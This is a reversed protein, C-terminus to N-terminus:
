ICARPPPRRAGRGRRLGPRCAQRIQGRGPVPLREIIIAEGASRAGQLVAVGYRGGTASLAHLATVLMRLPSAAGLDGLAIAGGRPNLRDEDVGFAQQWALPISAFTEEVEYHDLQHIGLGARELADTTVGFIGSIGDAAPHFRRAASVIRARPVLGLERGRQEDVILLAAAGTAPRAANRATLRWGPAFAAATDPASDADPPVAETAVYEDTGCRHRGVTIPIMEPMFEGMADVERARRRSRTAYLDLSDRALGCREAVSEAVAARGLWSGTSRGLGSTCSGIGAIVVVDHREVRKAANLLARQPREDFGDCAVVQVTAPLGVARCVAAANERGIDTGVIQLQTVAAAELQNRRLLGNLTQSLLEVGTINAWSGGARWCVPTRAADAIMM